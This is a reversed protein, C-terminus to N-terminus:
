AGRPLRGRVRELGSAAAGAALGPPLPGVVRQDDRLKGQRHHQQRARPQQRAAEHPEDPQVRTEVRGVHGHGLQPEGRLAVRRPRRAGRENAVCQM